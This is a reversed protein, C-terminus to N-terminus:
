KIRTEIGSVVFYAKSSHRAFIQNVEGAIKRFLRGEDTQPIVGLGVENTIVISETAADRVFLATEEALRRIGADDLNKRYLLNSVWFTLCDIIIGESGDPVGRVADVLNVPEEVTRWVPPRESRHARIRERMEPDTPVGTAIFTVGTRGAFFDLAFRSKGSSAGGIVFVYPM